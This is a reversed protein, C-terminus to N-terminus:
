DAPSLCARENNREEHEEGGTQSKHIEQYVSCSELLEKHSGTGVIRGRDMVYIRDCHMATSIRQTIIIQTKGKIKLGLAPRLRAETLFDLASFSDDFIYIPADKLVARAISLRQKQGGSLNKGSQTIKHDLGEAFGLVFDKAQAIELAALIEEDTADQRGMRINERVTGSYIATNQLVCSMNQRMTYRSLRSTPIGDLKVQGSTPMRFGMLLSVISSKGAGTGGIIAIKQGPEIMMSVDQLAPEAAGSYSFTVNDFEIRGTFTLDQRAIPDAMGRSGLVQGIRGAAVKAHPFYIISFAGMIVGSSVLSIYQVIAFIDGGTLGSGTEMRWGGIYVILVAAMDLLFTALPSILGMSVNATIMTESMARTADAVAEHEHNEANFARIVRIGRLRQRMLDNQKDVYKDSIDWLPMIKRGTFLVVGFIVPIFALLTLSLTVDKRVALIVGGFFLVPITVVTGAMEQAVWSVIDVDQTARTVLAATGLQGFAEFSMQNVKRFVVGRLDACFGSVVDTSMKTGLLVSGLGAVAVFLMLICCKVIYDLNKGAVGHNLIESMITPLLLDCVTSVGIALAAILLGRGYPKLYQFIEKM